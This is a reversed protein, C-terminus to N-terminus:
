SRRVLVAVKASQDDEPPRGGSSPGPFVSGPGTLAGHGMAAARKSTTSVDRTTFRRATWESNAVMQQYTNSAGDSTRCRCGTGSSPTNARGHPGVKSEGPVGRYCYPSSIRSMVRLPHSTTRWARCQTHETRLQTTVQTVSEIKRETHGVGKPSACVSSARTPPTRFVKAQTPPTSSL